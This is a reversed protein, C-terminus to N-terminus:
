SLLHSRIAAEWSVPELNAFNSYKDTNLVSYVPRKALQRGVAECRASQIPEWADLTTSTVSGAGATQQAIFMAMEYTSCGGAQTVHYVGSVDAECFRLCADALLPTGTPTIWQDTVFPMNYGAKIGTAIKDILNPGHHGFIYGTRIVVANPCNQLVATEGDLKSQGYVSKPGTTDSEILPRHIDGPYVFDTSIHVLRIGQSAAVTAVNRAGIHNTLNAANVNTEAGDVDTWAACNVIAEPADLKFREILSDLQTIDVEPRVWSLVTHGLSLATEVVQQGLMGRAGTVCIRMSYSYRMLLDLIYVPLEEPKM